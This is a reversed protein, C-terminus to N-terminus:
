ETENDWVKVEINQTESKDAELDSQEVTSNM